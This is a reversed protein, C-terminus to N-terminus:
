LSLEGTRKPLSPEANELFKRSDMPIEVAYQKGLMYECLDNLASISFWVSFFGRWLVYWKTVKFFRNVHLSSFQQEKKSFEIKNTKRHLKLFKRNWRTNFLFIERTGLEIAKHTNPIEGFNVWMAKREFPFCVGQKGETVTFHWLFQFYNTDNGLQSIDDIIGNLPYEISPRASLCRKNHTRTCM